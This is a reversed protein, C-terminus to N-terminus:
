SYFQFLSMPMLPEVQKPPNTILSKQAEIEAGTITLVQVREVEPKTKEKREPLLPSLFFACSKQAETEM